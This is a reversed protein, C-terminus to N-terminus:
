PTRGHFSADLEIEENGVYKKQGVWIGMKHVLDPLVSKHQSWDTIADLADHLKLVGYRSLGKEVGTKADSEVERQKDFKNELAHPFRCKGEFIRFSEAKKKWLRLLKACDFSQAVYHILEHNVHVAADPIRVCRKLAVIAGMDMLAYYKDGDVPSYTKDDKAM